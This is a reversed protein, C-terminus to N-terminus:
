AAATYQVTSYHVYWAEPPLHASLGSGPADMAIVDYGANAFLPALTAYSGTNDLWGSYCFIRKGQSSSSSGSGDATGGASSTAALRAPWHRCAIRLSGDYAVVDVAYGADRGSPLGGQAEFELRGKESRAAEKALKAADPPGRAPPGFRREAAPPAEAAADAAEAEAVAKRLFPTILEATADAADSLFYYGGDLETHEECLSPDLGEQLGSRRAHVLALWGDASAEQETTAFAKSSLLQLPCEVAKLLALCLEEDAVVCQAGSDALLVLRPDVTRLWPGDPHERRFQRRLLAAATQASAPAPLIAAASAADLDQLQLPASRRRLKDARYTDNLRSFGPAITDACDTGALGLTSECCVLGITRHPFAGAATAAIAGGSAHGLAIFRSDNGWITDAVEIM